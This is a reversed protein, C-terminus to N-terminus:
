TGNYIPTCPSPRVTSTGGFVVLNDGCSRGRRPWGSHSEADATLLADTEGYSILLVIARVTPDESRSGHDDPWLVRLQLRGLRYAAGARAVLVPVRDRRAERIAARQEPSESPLRPDLIAQVRTRELVAAAGGIHDRQPHTLVLLSLHRVGLRHLQDAARGEPPGQDVLVAAGPAQVLVADGQGVDLFTIRLGKPPPLTRPLHTWGVGLLAVLAAAAIGGRARRSRVRVVGVAMAALAGVLLVAQLSAVQAFPLGAVLRAVGALYAALWGNVWALVDAAGPVVPAVAGAVLGLALLPGVVPAALANALLSYTPVAGFHVWLVPATVAGCVGSLAVIEALRRPVPYGELAAQVRPVAVFIGGVAAFSLQFGPEVASYPNWALLVAAGVLLFYWRDRPRAM